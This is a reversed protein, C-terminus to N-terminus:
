INSVDSLFDHFYYALIVLLVYRTTAQPPCLGTQGSWECRDTGGGESVVADSLLFIFVTKVVVM